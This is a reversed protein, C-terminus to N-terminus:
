HCCRDQDGATGTRNPPRQRLPQAVRAGADGDEAAVGPFGGFADAAGGTVEAGTRADLGGRAAGLDDRVGCAAACAVPLLGARQDARGLVRPV